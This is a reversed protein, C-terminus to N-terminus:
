ILLLCYCTARNASRPAVCIFICQLDLLMQILSVWMDHRSDAVFIVLM